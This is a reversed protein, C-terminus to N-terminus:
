IVIGQYKEPVKRPGKTTSSLGQLPDQMPDVGLLCCAKFSLRFGQHIAEKDGIIWGGKEYSHLSRQVTRIAINFNDSIERACTKRPHKQKFFTLILFLRDSILEVSNHPHNSM